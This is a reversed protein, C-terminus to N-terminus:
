MSAARLPPEAQRRRRFGRSRGDGDTARDSRPRALQWAEGWEWVKGRDRAAAVLPPVTQM